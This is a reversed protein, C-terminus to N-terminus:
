LLHIGTYATCREWLQRALGEANAPLRPTKLKRKVYYGGSQLATPNEKALYVMTDAGQQVSSLFPRLLKFFFHYFSNSHKAFDSAVVGPHFAYMGVPQGEAKQHQRKAFERGLLIVYLKADAYARQVSYKREYMLDELNARAMIHAMSSTNIIKASARKQLSPLLLASLMYPALVNLAITREWGDVTEERETNMVGGANNVLIDLAGYRENFVKALNLIDAKNELDAILIDLEANPVSSLIEQKVSLAKDRNRGHVIVNWGDKALQLAAEKGIGATAGTILVRRTERMALLCDLRPM